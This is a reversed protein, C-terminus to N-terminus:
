FDRFGRSNTPLQGGDNLILEMIPQYRGCLRTAKLSCIGAVGQFYIKNTKHHSDSTTQIHSAGNSNNFMLDM